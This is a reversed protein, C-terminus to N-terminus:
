PDLAYLNEQKQDIQADLETLEMPDILSNIQTVFMQCQLEMQNRLWNLFSEEMQVDLIGQNVQDLVMVAVMDANPPLNTVPTQPDVLPITGMAVGTEFEDRLDM